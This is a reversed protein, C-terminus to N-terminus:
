PLPLSLGPDPPDGPSGLAPLRWLAGSDDAREAEGLAADLRQRVPVEQAAPLRAWVQADLLIETFGAQRLASLDNEYATIERDQGQGLAWLEMLLANDEVFARWAPPWAWPQREVMGGLLPRHVLPRYRCTLPSELLPVVILAGEGEAAAQWVPPLTLRWSGLPLVGQAWLQGLTGAVLLWLAAPARRALGDAALIALFIAGVGLWRGPHTLRDLFPVFRWLLAYPLWFAGDGVRTAPGLAFLACLGCLALWLGQRRGWALTALAGIVWAVPLWSRLQRPQDGVIKLANDFFPSARSVDLPPAPGQGGLHPWLAPLLLPAAFALALGFAACLDYLMRRPPRSLRGHVYFVPALLGLFLAYFWYGVGTLALGAGASVVDGRGRRESLRLLGLVALPLGVVAIQTLRGAALEGLYIPSLAWLAGGALAADLRGWLHRGLPVFAALNLPIWALAALSYWGPFGVAIRFLGSLAMELSNGGNLAWLPAGVPYLEDPDTGPWRGALIARHFADHLYVAGASDDNYSGILAGGLSRLDPRAVVLALLTGLALALGLDAGRRPRM